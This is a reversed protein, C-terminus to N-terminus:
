GHRDMYDQICREWAAIEDATFLHENAETVTYGVEGHCFAIAGWRRDDDSQRPVRRVTSAAPV